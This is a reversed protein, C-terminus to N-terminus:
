EYVINCTEGNDKKKKLDDLDIGLLCHNNGKEPCLHSHFWWNSETLLGPHNDTVRVMLGTCVITSNPDNFDMIAKGKTDVIWEIEDNTVNPDIPSIKVGL